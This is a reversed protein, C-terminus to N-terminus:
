SKQEAYHRRLIAAKLYFVLDLAEEYAESLWDRPDNRIMDMDIDAKNYHNSGSNLRKLMDQKVVNSILENGPRLKRDNMDHWAEVVSEAQQPLLEHDEVLITKLEEKSCGDSILYDITNFHEECLHDM